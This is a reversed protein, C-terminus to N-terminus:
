QASPRKVVLSFLSIPLLVYTMLTITVWLVISLVEGFMPKTDALTLSNLYSCIVFDMFCDLAIGILSSWFMGQSLKVLWLKIPERYSDFFKSVFYFVGIMFLRLLIFVLVVAVTNLNMITNHSELDILETKELIPFDTEFDFEMM